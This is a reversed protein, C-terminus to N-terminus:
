KYYGEPWKDLSGIAQVAMPTCSQYEIIAFSEENCSTCEAYCCETTTDVDKKQPAIINSEEKWTDYRFDSANWWRMTDGIRYTQLCFRGTDDGDFSSAVHMQCKIDTEKKCVPCTAHVILWNYAGM